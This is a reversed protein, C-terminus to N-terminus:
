TISCGTTALKEVRVRGKASLYVKRTYAVKGTDCFEFTNNSGGAQGTPQFEADPRGRDGIIRFREPLAPNQQLVVDTGADVSGNDDVDLFVMWGPEWDTNGTCSLYDNTPCVKVNHLRKVAESRALYLSAIFTNVETSMRNRTIFDQMPPVAATLLISVVVLIILVEVLTLGGERRRRPFQVLLVGDM